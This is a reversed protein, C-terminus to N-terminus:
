INKNSVQFSLETFVMCNYEAKWARDFSTTKISEIRLWSSAETSVSIPRDMNEDFSKQWLWFLIGVTIYLDISFKIPYFIIGFELSSYVAKLFKETDHKRPVM